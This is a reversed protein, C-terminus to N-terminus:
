GERYEVGSEPKGLRRAGIGILKSKLKNAAHFCAGGLMVAMRSGVPSNSPLSTFSDARVVRFQDPDIELIEALATAALQEHGQGSSTTHITASISGVGDVMVRVSDM